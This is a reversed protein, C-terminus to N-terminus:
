ILDSGEKRRSEKQREREGGKMWELMEDKTTHGCGWCVSAGGGGCLRLKERGRKGETEEKQGNRKERGCWENMGEVWEARRRRGKKM